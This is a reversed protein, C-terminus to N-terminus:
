FIFNYLTESAHAHAWDLSNKQIIEYTNNTEILNIKKNLEDPTSFSVCNHMDILGHPACTKPKKDLMYFCMVCGNMAIEYHRYCDWGAKKRTTAYQSLKLDNYYEQQTKFAYHNKGKFYSLGFQELNPIQNHVAFKKEKKPLIETMVFKPFSFSIPFIGETRDYYERKYYPGLNKAKSNILPSDTTDIFVLNLNKDLSNLFNQNQRYGPDFIIILDFEFNNARAILNSRNINIPDLIKTWGFRFEHALSDKYHREKYPYDTVNFKRNRLNYILNCEINNASGHLNLILINKM